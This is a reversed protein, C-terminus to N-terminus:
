KEDMYWGKYVLYGEANKRGMERQEPSLEKVKMAPVGAWITYPEIRTGAKVLSNAAVVAGEGVVVGDLLTAGMGILCNDEVRAGHINALHGVSVNNGIEVVSKQHLTHLVAGDQINSNNGIRIPNVDGRLVANYWISCHEGITVDGVLVATEALFTNKGVQPTINNLERIYAM